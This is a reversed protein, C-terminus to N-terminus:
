KPATVGAHKAEKADNDDASGLPYLKAIVTPKSPDFAQGSVTVTQGPSVTDPFRNSDDVIAARLNLSSVLVFVIFLVRLTISRKMESRWDGTRWDEKGPAAYIVDAM